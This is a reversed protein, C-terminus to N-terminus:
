KMFKEIMAAYAANERLEALTKNQSTALYEAIFRALDTTGFSELLWKRLVADRAAADSLAKAAAHEKERLRIIDSPEGCTFTLRNALEAYASYELMIFVTEGSNKRLDAFGDAAREAFALVEAKSIGERYWISKILKNATFDALEYLNRCVWYRFEHTDKSFLQETKQGRTKYWSPLSSLVEIAQETKGAAHLLKAKMTVADLRIEEDACSGLICDCIQAFEDAHELLVDPSNDAYGGAIDWMYRNMVRFDGPYARRAESILERAEDHRGENQLRTHKELLERVESETRATDYGMLTDIDTDLVRALPLLMTIDPYTDGSEWKSVAACSVCLLDSLKEQTLGKEKRLRKINEGIRLTGM